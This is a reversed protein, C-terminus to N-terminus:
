SSSGREPRKFQKLLILANPHIHDRNNHIRELPDSWDTADIDILLQLIDGLKWSNREVAAYYAAHHLADIPLPHGAEAIARALFTPFRDPSHELAAICLTIAEDYQDRTWSALVATEPYSIPQNTIRATLIAPAPGIDGFEAIALEVLSAPTLAAAADVRNQPPYLGFQRPWAGTRRFTDDAERDKRALSKGDQECFWEDYGRYAPRVGGDADYMEDFHSDDGSM